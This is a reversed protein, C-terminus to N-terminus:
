RMHSAQLDFDARYQEMAAAARDEDGGFLGSQLPAWRAGQVSLQQAFDQLPDGHGRRSRWVSRGLWSSRRWREEPSGAYHRAIVDTSILGLMVEARDFESDFSGQDPLQDRFLPRLIHHLWDAVPTYYKGLRNQTFDELAERQSKGTHVVRVVVQPSWENAFPAYPHSAELLPVLTSRNKERVSQEALLVRLCEWRGSAVSALAATMVSTLGPIHALDTLDTSGSTIASPAAVFSKIGTTWPTLSEPSGWRAAVQLSACFPEVTAWLEEAHEAVRVVQDEGPGALPRVRDEDTLVAIVRHVEQAVLDDLQIRRQPDLLLDKTLRKLLDARDAEDVHEVVELTAAPGLQKQGMLGHITTVLSVAAPTYGSGFLDAYNLDSLIQGAGLDWEPVAGADFRVPILWTRGPPMKRFEDIALTIEENMYSKDKARSNDSFCALFVLSGNRIAERIKAKWADGPGLATRDRWYPVGAATLVACLEDVKTTDEHVYSVFAHNGDPSSV